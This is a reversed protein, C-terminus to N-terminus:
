LNKCNLKAKNKMMARKQFDDKILSNRESDM